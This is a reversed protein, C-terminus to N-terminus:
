ILLAHYQNTPYTIGGEQIILIQLRYTVFIIKNKM